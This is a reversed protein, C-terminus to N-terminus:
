SVSVSRLALEAHIAIMARKFLQGNVHQSVAAKSKFIRAGTLECYVFNADRPDEVMFM